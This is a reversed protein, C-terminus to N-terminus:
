FPHENHIFGGICSRDSLEPPPHSIQPNSQDEICVPSHHPAELTEISKQDPASSVKPCRPGLMVMLARQLAEVDQPTKVENLPPDDSILPKSLNVILSDVVHDFSPTFLDHCGRDSFELHQDVDEHNSLDHLPTSSLCSHEGEANGSIVSSLNFPNESFIHGRRM